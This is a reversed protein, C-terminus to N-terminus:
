PNFPLVQFLSSQFLPKSVIQEYKAASLKGTTCLQYLQLHVKSFAALLPM